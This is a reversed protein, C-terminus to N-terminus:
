RDEERNPAVADDPTVAEDEDSSELRERLAEKEERVARRRERDMERDFYIKGDIITTRAVAYLSMPDDDWVVLDAEKGEEISGVRDDIGLQIAPNITVLALAEDASLGGWKMAKAAEQNLHRMEEGSDSNISVVVGRETMLAANHPIADYAEVKYAWWDSFTSGGAGHEAMEDAVKYGELVHQFVAIRVGFEEATRMLQLIEDGRYSHAHVQREGRLIEAMTELKLDTRPPIPNEGRDRAAEYAEWEEMYDRADQFADRIVDQVGMRTAPYRDPDRDRKTNEGLAFKIGPVAHEYLLGDADAGWRMKIVANKGGIPNASGHLVNAMTVGGAAARYITEDNPDLVDRIGVMSSVSVAGENIADAAIHSHADIIGPTVHMGEGDIVRADSPVDVDTGVAEITGDRVLVTANELTGDTVTHVTAGTVALVGPEEYPGRDRAMPVPEWSGAGSDDSAEGGGGAMREDDRRVEFKRGDVFVMRVSTGEDFLDGDTVVANGVKGSELTGLRDDVGYIEAPTVTLARLADDPSLGAALARRVAGLVDSPADLGDSYFAFRAGADALAAPTSPAHHRDRLEDLSPEADPDGNEPAAPWDLSV